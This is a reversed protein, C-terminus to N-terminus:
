KRVRVGVRQGGSPKRQVYVEGIQKSRAEQLTVKGGVKVGGSAKSNSAHDKGFDSLAGGLWQGKDWDKFQFDTGFLGDAGKILGIEKAEDNAAQEINSKGDDALQQLKDIFTYFQGQHKYAVKEIEQQAQFVEFPTMAPDGAVSRHQSLANIYGSRRTESALLPGISIYIPLLHPYIAGSVHAQLESLFLTQLDRLAIPKGGALAKANTESLAAESVSPWPVLEQSPQIVTGTSEDVRTFSIGLLESSKKALPNVFVDEAEELFGLLKMCFTADLAITEGMTASRSSVTYVQTTNGAPANGGVTTNPGGGSGDEYDGDKDPGPPHDHLKETKCHSTVQFKRAMVLVAEMTQYIRATARRDAARQSAFEDLEGALENLSPQLQRHVDLNNPVAAGAEPPAANMAFHVQLRFALAIMLFFVLLLLMDGLTLQGQGNPVGGLFGALVSTDQLVGAVTIFGSSADDSRTSIKGYFKTIPKSKSKVEIWFTFDYQSGAGDTWHLHWFEDTKDFKLTALASQGGRSYSRLDWGDRLCSISFHELQQVDKAALDGHKTFRYRGPPAKVPSQLRSRVPEEVKPSQASGGETATESNLSESSDVLEVTSGFGIVEEIAEDIEQRTYGLAAICDLVAQYSLHTGGELDPKFCAKIFTEPEALLRSALHIKTMIINSKLPWIIGFQPFLASSGFTARVTILLESSQQSNTSQM